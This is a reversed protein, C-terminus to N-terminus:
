ELKRFTLCVITMTQHCGPLHQRNRAPSEQSQGSVAPLTAGYMKLHRLAQDPKAIM